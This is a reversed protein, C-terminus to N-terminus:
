DVQNVGGTGASLGTLNRQQQLQAMPLMYVTSLLTGDRDYALFPGAPMTDPQVYLIGLGPVFEPLETLESVKRFKGGPPSRSLDAQKEGTVSPGEGMSPEEQAAPYQALAAGSMLLLAATSAYLIRKM